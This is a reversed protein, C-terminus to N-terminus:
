GFDVNLYRTTVFFGILQCTPFIALSTTTTLLARSDMKRTYHVSVAKKGVTVNLTKNAFLCDSM